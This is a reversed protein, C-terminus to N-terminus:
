ARSKYSLIGILAIITASQDVSKIKVDMLDADEFYFVESHKGDFNVLHSGMSMKEFRQPDQLLFFSDM